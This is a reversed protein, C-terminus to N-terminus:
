LKQLFVNKFLLIKSFPLALIMNIKLVASHFFFHLSVFWFSHNMIIYFHITWFSFRSNNGKWDVSLLRDIMRKIFVVKSGGRGERKLVMFGGLHGNQTSMSAIPIQDLSTESKKTSLHCFGEEIPCQPTKNTNRTSQPHKIFQPDM